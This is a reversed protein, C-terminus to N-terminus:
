SSNRSPLSHDKYTYYTYVICLYHIFVCTIKATNVYKHLLTFFEQMFISKTNTYPSTFYFNDYRIKLFYLLCIKM